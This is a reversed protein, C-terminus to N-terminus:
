RTKRSQRFTEFAYWFATISPVAINGRVTQVLGLATLATGVMFMPSLKRGTVVRFPRVKLPTGGKKAQNNEIVLSPVQEQIQQLLSYMNESHQVVVSGTSPNAHVAHIIEIRHLADSLNSFFSANGRKAPIRMRMRGPIAHVLMATTM